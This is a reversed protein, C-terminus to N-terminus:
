DARKNGESDTCRASSRRYDTVDMEGKGAWHRCWWDALVRVRRPEYHCLWIRDDSNFLAWEDAEQSVWKCNRCSM